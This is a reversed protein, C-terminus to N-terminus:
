RRRGGYTPHSRSARSGCWAVTLAAPGWVGVEVVLEDIGLFLGALLVAIAAGAAGAALGVAVLDGTAFARRRLALLYLVLLLLTAPYLLLAAVGGEVGRALLESESATAGQVNQGFRQGVADITGLGLGLPNSAVVNFDHIWAHRKSADEGPRTIATTGQNTIVTAAVAIVFIGVLATRAARNRVAFFLV